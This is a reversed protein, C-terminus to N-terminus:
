RAVTNHRRCEQPRYLGIACAGAVTEDVAAQDRETAGRTGPLSTGLARRLDPGASAVTSNSACGALAAIMIILGATKVWM